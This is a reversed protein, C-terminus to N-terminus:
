ATSVRRPPACYAAHKPNSGLGEISGVNVITFERDEGRQATFVRAEETRLRHAVAFGIGSRGGTM